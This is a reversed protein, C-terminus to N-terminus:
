LIKFLGAHCTRGCRRVMWGRQLVIQYNIVWLESHNLCGNRLNLFEESFDRVKLHVSQHSIYKKEERFNVIDCNTNNFYCVASEILKGAHNWQFSFPWFQVLSNLSKAKINPINRSSDLRFNSLHGSDAANNTQWM